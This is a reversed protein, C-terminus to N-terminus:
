SSGHRSTTKWTRRISKADLYDHIVNLADGGVETCPRFQYAFALGAVKPLEAPLLARQLAAAAQLDQRLASGAAELRRNAAQLADRAEKEATVDSQVGIFHTM